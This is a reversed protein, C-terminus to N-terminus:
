PLSAMALIELRQRQLTGGVDDYDGKLEGNDEFVRGNEFINCEVCM